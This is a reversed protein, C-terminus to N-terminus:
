GNGGESERGERSGVQLRRATRTITRNGTYNSGFEHSSESNVWPEVDGAGARENCVCM